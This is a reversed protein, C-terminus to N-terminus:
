AFGPVPALACAIISTKVKTKVKAVLTNRIDKVQECAELTPLLLRAGYDNVNVALTKENTRVKAIL